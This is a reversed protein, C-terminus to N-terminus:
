EIGLEKMKNYLTKVDVCLTEAAEQRNWHHLELARRIMTSEASRLAGELAQALSPIETEDGENEDELDALEVRRGCRILARKLVNQLERVNGPWVRASLARLVEPSLDEVPKGFIQSARQLLVEALLPIDERREELSPVALSLEALRHYLDERFRGTRRAESLDANTAAVVRVDFAIEDSGGVRRFRREQLARLLKAQSSLPLEGVEDLFLTGGEALELRGRRRSEAGTFAGKEHGFLESEILREPLAGCDLSVMPKDRRPSEEHLAMAALDKGSGTPGTLLVGVDVKAAAALRSRLATMAPSRGVLRALGRVQAQEDARRLDRELRVQRLERRVVALLQPLNFPKVVYDVAGLELCDLATQTELAGTVVVVPIWPRSRRLQELLAQGPEDPLGLDLLVLSVGPRLLSQRAAAASGAAEVTLGQQGLYSRVLDVTSAQDEVFLIRSDIM